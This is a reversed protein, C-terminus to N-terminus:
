KIGVGATEVKMKGVLAETSYNNFDFLEKDKSFDEYVGKTKIEYTLSGTDTFFLRSNKGYKKKLAIM